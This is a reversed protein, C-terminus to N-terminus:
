AKKTRFNNHLIFSYKLYILGGHVFAASNNNCVTVIHTFVPIIGTHVCPLSISASVLGVATQLRYLDPVCGDLKALSAASM